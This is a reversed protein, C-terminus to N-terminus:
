RECERLRFSGNNSCPHRVTDGRTLFARGYTRKLDKGPSAVDHRDGVGHKDAHAAWERNLGNTCEVRHMQRRGFLEALRWGQDCDHRAVPTHSVVRNGKTVGHLLRRRRESDTHGELADLEACVRGDSGSEGDGEGDDQAEAEVEVAVGVPVVAKKRQVTKKVKVPAPVDSATLVM